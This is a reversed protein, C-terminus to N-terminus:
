HLPRYAYCFALLFTVACALCIVEVHLLLCVVSGHQVRYCTSCFGIVCLILSVWARVNITCKCWATGVGTLVAVVCILLLRGTMTADSPGCGGADVCQRWWAISELMAPAMVSGKNQVAPSSKSLSSTTVNAGTPSFHGVSGLRVVRRITVLVLHIGRLINM